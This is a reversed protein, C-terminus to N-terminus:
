IYWLSYNVLLQNTGNQTVILNFENSILRIYATHGSGGELSTSCILSISANPAINGIYFPGTCNTNSPSSPGVIGFSGNVNYLTGGLNSNFGYNLLIADTASFISVPTAFNSSILSSDIISVIPKNPLILEGM